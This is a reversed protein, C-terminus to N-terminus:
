SDTSDQHGSLEMFCRPKAKTSDTLETHGIRRGILLPQHRMARKSALSGEWTTGVEIPVDVALKRAGELADLADEYEAEIM